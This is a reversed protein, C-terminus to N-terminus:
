RPSRAPARQMGAAVAREVGHQRADLVVQEVDLGIEAQAASPGPRRACQGDGVRLHVPELLSISRSLASRAGSRDKM